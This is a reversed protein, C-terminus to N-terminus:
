QDPPLIRSSGYAAYADPLEAIVPLPLVASDAILIEKSHLM